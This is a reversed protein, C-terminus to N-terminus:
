VSVFNDDMGGAPVWLTVQSVQLNRPKRRIAPYSRAAIAMMAMLSMLSMAMPAAVGAADMQCGVHAIFSDVIMRQRM